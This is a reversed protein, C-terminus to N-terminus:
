ATVETEDPYLDEYKYMKGDADAFGAWTGEPVLFVKFKRTGHILRIRCLRGENVLSELAKTRASGDFDKYSRDRHWRNTDPWRGTAGFVRHAFEVIREACEDNETSIVASRLQSFCHVLYKSGIEAAATVYKVDVETENNNVAMLFALRVTMHYLRAFLSDRNGLDVAHKMFPLSDVLRLADMTFPITRVKSRCWRWLSEYTADFEPVSPPTKMDAITRRQRQIGMVPIIRNLFGSVLDTKDMMARISDTQTTFVASFACDHLSRTGGSLSFDEIVMEKDPWRSKVFDSLQILRTKMAGGGRRRSKEVITALEDEHLWATVGVEMKTGPVVAAPDDIETRISQVLAEASGPSPIIKVGSGMDRHFKVAPVRMLM